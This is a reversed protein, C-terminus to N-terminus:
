GPQAAIWAMTRDTLRDLAEVSQILHAELTDEIKNHSIGRLSQVFLMVTPVGSRAVEAADHLPGSPLRHGTGSVERVSADAADILEPHFPIPEIHWLDGFTVTCGGGDALRRAADQADRWMAALSQANLHRQDLTLECTEVVSTVIGPLTKCSGITCVGGHKEAIAYIEQAFQGAARFADRRVNMPTSGSHAAQGHFTLTHREVGVTGLVAGLPLGLGELVPGQEIHLELYAAAGALEQRAQPANELTVGVRALADELGVGDRDRLKRMEALDINGGAASSGYLSRGFRAGEEDAWDVLKLTVPPSGAYQENVRRMVELGALVNLCGDLWGGNPVSDLHGGIILTRPSQGKLTAWYNGAADMHQSVPLTDLREKLFARAQLWTDTFAVRQAGQENGTLDRLAKLDDITRQPNLAM